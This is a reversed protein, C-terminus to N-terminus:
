TIQRVKLSTRRSRGSRWVLRVHGIQDRALELHGMKGVPFYSMVKRVEPGTGRSRQSRDSSLALEEHSDSKWTLEVHGIQSEPLYWPVQRVELCIGHFRCYRPLFNRTLRSM